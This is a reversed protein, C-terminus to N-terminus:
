GWADWRHKCQVAPVASPGRVEQRKREEPSIWQLIGAELVQPPFAPILLSAPPLLGKVM